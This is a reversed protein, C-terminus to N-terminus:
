QDEMPQSPALAALSIHLATGEGARTWVHVGAWDGAIDIRADCLPGLRVRLRAMGMAIADVVTAPDADAAVVVDELDIVKPFIARKM